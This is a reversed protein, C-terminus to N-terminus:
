VYVCFFLSEHNNAQAMNWSEGNERTNLHFAREGRRIIEANEQAVDALYQSRRPEGRLDSMQLNGVWASRLRWLCLSFMGIWKVMEFSERRTRNFQDFRGLFVNHAGKELQSRLSNRYCKLGDTARLSDHNLLGKYMKRRRCTSEETRTRTKTEELVTLGLWHAILEECQFWSPSWWFTTSM